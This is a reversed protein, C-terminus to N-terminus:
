HNYFYNNSKLYNLNQKIWANNAVVKNTKMEIKMKDTLLLMENELLGSKIKFSEVEQWSVFLNDAINWDGYIPFFNIGEHSFRFLYSTAKEFAMVNEVGTPLVWKVKSKTHGCLINDEYEYAYRALENKVKELSLM